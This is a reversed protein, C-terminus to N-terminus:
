AFHRVHDQPSRQGTKNARERYNRTKAKEERGKEGEAGREEGSRERETETERRRQRERRDTETGEEAERGLGPGAARDGCALDSTAAGAGPSAGERGHGARGTCGFAPGGRGAGGRLQEKPLPSAGQM